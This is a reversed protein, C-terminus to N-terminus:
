VIIGNYMVFKLFSLSESNSINWLPSDHVAQGRSSLAHQWPRVKFPSLQDSEYM